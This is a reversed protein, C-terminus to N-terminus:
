KSEGQKFWIITEVHLETTATWNDPIHYSKRLEKVKAEIQEPTLRYGCEHRVSGFILHHKNDIMVRFEMDSDDYGCTSVYGTVTTGKFSLSAPLSFFTDPTHHTKVTRRKGDPCLCNEVKVPIQWPGRHILKAKTM